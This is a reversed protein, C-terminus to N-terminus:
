ATAACLPFARYAHQLRMKRLMIMVLMGHVLALLGLTLAVETSPARPETVTHPTCPFPLFLPVPCRPGSTRFLVGTSSAFVYVGWNQLNAYLYDSQMEPPGSEPPLQQGDDWRCWDRRRPPECVREARECTRAGRSGPCLRRAGCEGTLKPRYEPALM